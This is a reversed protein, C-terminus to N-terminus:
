RSITLPLRPRSSSSTTSLSWAAGAAPPIGQSLLMRTLYHDPVIILRAPDPFPEDNALVGPDVHGHPSILPRDRVLAYLERALARQTPEAPFLLDTM